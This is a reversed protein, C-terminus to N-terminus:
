AWTWDLRGAALFLIVAILVLSIALTAMRKLIGALINPRNESTM